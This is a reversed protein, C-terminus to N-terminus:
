WVFPVDKKTRVIAYESTLGNRGNVYRGHADCLDIALIALGKEQLEDYCADSLADYAERFTVPVDRYYLSGSRVDIKSSGILVGKEQHVRQRM